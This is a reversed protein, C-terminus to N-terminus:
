SLGRRTSRPTPARPEVHHAAKQPSPAQDAASRAARSRAGSKAKDAPSPPLSLADLHQAITLPATCCYCFGRKVAWRVDSLERADLGDLDLPGCVVCIAVVRM